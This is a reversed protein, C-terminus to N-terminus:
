VQTVTSILRRNGSILVKSGLSKGLRERDLVQYYLPSCLMETIIKTKNM